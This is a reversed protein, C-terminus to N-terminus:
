AATDYIRPMQQVRMFAPWESPDTGASAKFKLPTGHDVPNDGMQKHFFPVSYVRARELLWTAWEIDYLRPQHDKGQKSEGGCIIWDLREIDPTPYIMGLMPEVSLGIWKVGHEKKLKVLKPVDRDWEQQTVVTAIIGVHAYASGDGWDEPLMKRVNGVRKTVIQWRLHKCKKIVAWADKRWQPDIENDFFDSLSSAFVWRPVPDGNKFLPGNAEPDNDIPNTYYAWWEDWLKNWHLPKNWNSEATRHRPVGPGWGDVWGRRENDKEAYCFECGPGVKTCGIWFNMTADTWGIATSEAM